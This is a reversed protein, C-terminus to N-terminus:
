SRQKMFVTVSIYWLSPSTVLPMLNHQGDNAM